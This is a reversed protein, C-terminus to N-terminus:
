TGLLLSNAVGSQGKRENKKQSWKYYKRADQEMRQDSSQGEFMSTAKQQQAKARATGRQEGMEVSSWYFSNAKNRM